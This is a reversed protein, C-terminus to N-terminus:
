WAEATGSHESAEVDPTYSGFFHFTVASQPRDIEYVTKVEVPLHGDSLACFSKVNARMTYPPSLTTILSKLAKLKESFGAEGFRKAFFEWDSAPQETLGEIEELVADLTVETVPREPKDASTVIERCWDDIPGAIGYTDGIWTLQTRATPTIQRRM